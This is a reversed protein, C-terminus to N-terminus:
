PESSSFAILRLSMRKVQRGQGLLSHVKPPGRRPEWATWHHYAISMLLPACRWAAVSPTMMARATTRWFLLGELSLFPTMPLVQLPSHRDVRRPM